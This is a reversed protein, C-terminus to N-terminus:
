VKGFDEVPPGQRAPAAAVLKKQAAEMDTLKKLIEAQTAQIAEVDDKTAPQCALLGLALVAALASAGARDKQLLHLVMRQAGKPGVGPLVQFAEILKDILPSLGM